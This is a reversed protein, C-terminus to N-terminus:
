TLAKPEEADTLLRRSFGKADHALASNPKMQHRRTVEAFSYQESDLDEKADDLQAQSYSRKRGMLFICSGRACLIAHYNGFIAM